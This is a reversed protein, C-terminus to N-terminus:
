PRRRQSRQRHHPDPQVVYGDMRLDDAAALAVALTLDKERLDSGDSGKTVAGTERGGHGADIVVTRARSANGRVSPVSREVTTPSPQPEALAPAPNVVDNPPLSLNVTPTPSAQIQAVSTPATGTSAFTLPGLNWNSTGAVLSLLVVGLAAGRGFRPLSGGPLAPRFRSGRTTEGLVRQMGDVVRRAPGKGM